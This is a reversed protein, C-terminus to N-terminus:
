YISYRASNDGANVILGFTSEINSTVSRGRVCFPWILM